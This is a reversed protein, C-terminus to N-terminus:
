AVIGPAPQPAPETVAGCEPCRGASARVDYGCAVCLGGAIRRRRRRALWARRASVAPAVALLAAILAHPVEIGVIWALGRKPTAPLTTNWYSFGLGEFRTPWPMAGPAASYKWGGTFGPVGPHDIRVYGAGISGRTSSVGRIDDYPRGGSDGRRHLEVLDSSVYSRGWLVLAAACLLLSTGVLLRRVHRWM